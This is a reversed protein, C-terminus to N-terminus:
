SIYEYMSIYISMSFSYFYHANKRNWYDIQLCICCNIIIYYFSSVFLVDLSNIQTHFIVNILWQKSLYQSSQYVKRSVIRTVLFTQKFEDCRKKDKDSFYRNQLWPSIFDNFHVATRKSAQLCVITTVVFLIILILFSLGISRVVLGPIKTRKKMWWRWWGACQISIIQTIQLTMPDNSLYLPLRNFKM